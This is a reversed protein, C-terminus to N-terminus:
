TACLIRNLVSVVEERTSTSGPFTVSFKWDLSGGWLGGSTVLRALPTIVTVIRPYGGSVLDCYWPSHTSTLIHPPLTHTHPHTHMDTHPRTGVTSQLTNWRKGEEEKEGREGGSVSSGLRQHVIRRPTCFCWNRSGTLFSGHCAVKEKRTQLRSSSETLPSTESTMYQWSTVTVHDWMVYEFVCSLLLLVSCCYGREWAGVSQFAFMSTTCAHLAQYKKDRSFHWLYLLSLSSKITRPRVSVWFLFFLSPLPCSLVCRAIPRWTDYM